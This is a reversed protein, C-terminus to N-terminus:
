RAEAPVPCTEEWNHLDWWEVDGAALKIEAAGKEAMKGNVYFLWALKKDTDQEIGEVATVFKGGDDTEIDAVRDLAQMATQGAPVNTKKIVIEQGCDQTILVAAQPKAAPAAAGNGSDEGGGCASVVLVFVLAAFSRYRVNGGEELPVPRLRAAPRRVRPEGEEGGERGSGTADHRSPM